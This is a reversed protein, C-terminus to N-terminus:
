RRRKRSRRPTAKRIATILAKAIAKEVGQERVLNEFPRSLYKRGAAGDQTPSKVATIPGPNFRGEHQAVAYETDFSIVRIERSRTSRKTVKSSLIMKRTLEPALAVARGRLINAQRTIAPGVEKPTEKTIARITRALRRRGFVKM